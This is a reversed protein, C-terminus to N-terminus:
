CMMTAIIAIMGRMMMMEIAMTIIGQQNMRFFAPNEGHSHKSQRIGDSPM